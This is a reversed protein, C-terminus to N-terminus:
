RASWTINKCRVSARNTILCHFSINWVTSEKPGRPSACDGYFHRGTSIIARPGCDDSGLWTFLSQSTNVMHVLNADACDQDADFAVCRHRQRPSKITKDSPADANNEVNLAGDYLDSSSFSHYSASNEGGKDNIIRRSM